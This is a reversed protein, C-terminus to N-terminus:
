MVYCLTLLLTLLTRRHSKLSQWGTSLSLISFIMVSYRKLIAPIGLVANCPTNETVRSPWHGASCSGLYKWLDRVRRHRVCLPLSRYRRTTCWGCTGERLRALLLRKHINYFRWRGGWNPFMDSGKLAGKYRGGTMLKWRRSRGEISAVRVHFSRKVNWTFRFVISKHAAVLWHLCSRKHKNEPCPVVIRPNKTQSVSYRNWKVTSPSFPYYEDVSKCKELLLHESSIYM